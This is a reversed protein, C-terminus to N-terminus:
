TVAQGTCVRVVPATLGLPRERHAPWGPRQRGGCRLSLGRCGAHARLDGPEPTTPKGTRQPVTWPYTTLIKLLPIRKASGGTTQATEAGRDVVGRTLDEALGVATQSAGFTVSQVFIGPLLFDVYTVGHPLSRGVAGGFVYVFLLV